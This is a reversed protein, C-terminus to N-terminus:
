EVVMWGYNRSIREIAKASWDKMTTVIRGEANTVVASFRGNAQEMLRVTTGNNATMLRGGQQVASVESAALVGGRTATAGALREAGHATTAPTVGKGAASFEDSLAPRQGRQLQTEEYKKVDNATQRAGAPSRQVPSAPLPRDISSAITLAIPIVYPIADFTDGTLGTLNNFSRGIGIPIESPLQDLHDPDDNILAEVIIKEIPNYTSGGEIINTKGNSEVSSLEGSGKVSDGDVRKLGTPDTANM